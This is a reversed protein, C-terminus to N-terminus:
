NAPLKTVNPRIWSKQGYAKWGADKLKKQLNPESTRIGGIKLNMVANRIEEACNSETWFESWESASDLIRNDMSLIMLLQWYRTPFRHPNKILHRITDLVSSLNTQRLSFISELIRSKNRRPLNTELRWTNAARHVLMAKALKRKRFRQPSHTFLVNGWPLVEFEKGSEHVGHDYIYGYLARSLAHPGSITPTHDLFSNSNEISRVIEAEWAGLFRHNKPAQFCGNWFRRSEERILTVKSSQPLDLIAPFTDADCYWGGFKRVAKVRLLDVLMAKPWNMDVNLGDILLEVNTDEWIQIEAVRSRWKDINEVISKPIEGGVWFINLM